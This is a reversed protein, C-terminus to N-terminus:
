KENEKMVLEPLEKELTKYLSRHNIAKIYFYIWPIIFAWICCSWWGLKNALEANRKYEEKHYKYLNEKENM